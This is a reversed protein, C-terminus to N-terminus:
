NLKSNKVEIADMKIIMEKISLGCYSQCAVKLFYYLSQGEDDTMVGTRVSETIRGILDIIDYAIEVHPDSYPDYKKYAMNTLKVMNSLINIEKLLQNYSNQLTKNIVFEKKQM